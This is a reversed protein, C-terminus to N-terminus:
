PFKLQIHAGGHDGNTISINGSQGNRKHAMMSQQILYLGLGGQTGQPVFEGNTLQEPKFGPGNDYINISWQGNKFEQININLQKAGAQKANMFVNHLAIALLQEDYFANFENDFELTFSLEHLNEFERAIPSLTDMLWHEDENLKFDQNQIKLVSLLEVLKHSLAQSHRDIKELLPKFQPQAILAQSLDEQVSLLSQLQNKIDHLESSILTSTDFAM